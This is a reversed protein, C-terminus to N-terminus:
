LQGYIWETIAAELVETNALNISYKTLGICSIYEKSGVIEKSFVVSGRQDKCDKSEFLLM